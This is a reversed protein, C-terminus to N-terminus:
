ELYKKVEQNNDYEEELIDILQLVTLTMDKKCSSCTPSIGGLEFTAECCPSRQKGLELFVYESKTM